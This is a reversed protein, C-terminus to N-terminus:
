IATAETMPARRTWRSHHGLETLAPYRFDAPMVGVVTYPTGSLTLSTGVVDRRGGLRNQWFSHSLVVVRNRGEQEEEPLFTRGLMPAVGLVHFYEASFSYAIILAPEGQGTFTYMTDTSAAMGEFSRSKSRWDAFDLPSVLDTDFGRTRNYGWVTVLRDADKYPLPRLLVANVLSFIATNAGIGLALSLVAVLTFGPASRLQRLAYRVDQFFSQM